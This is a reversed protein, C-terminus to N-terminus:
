REPFRFGVFVSASSSSMVRNEHVPRDLLAVTGTSTMAPCTVSIEPASSRFQNVATPLWSIAYGFALLVLGFDYDRVLIGLAGALCFLLFRRRSSSLRQEVSPHNIEDGTERTVLDTWLPM